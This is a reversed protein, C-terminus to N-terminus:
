QVHYILTLMKRTLNIIDNAPCMKSLFDRFSVVITKMQM